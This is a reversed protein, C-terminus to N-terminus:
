GLMRPSKKYQAELCKNMVVGQARSQGGSNWMVAIQATALVIDRFQM